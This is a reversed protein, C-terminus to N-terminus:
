GDCVECATKPVRVTGLLADISDSAVYYYNDDQQAVFAKGHRMAKEVLARQPKPMGVLKKLKVKVYM